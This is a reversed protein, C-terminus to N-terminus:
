VELYSLYEDLSTIHGEFIDSSNILKNNVNRAALMMGKDSSVINIPEGSIQHNIVHLLQEDWIQNLRERKSPNFDPMDLKSILNARMEIPAPYKKLYEKAKDKIFSPVKAKNDEMIIDERRIVGLYIALSSIYAIATELKFNESAAYEGFTMGNPLKANKLVTLMRELECETEQNHKKIEEINSLYPTLNEITPNKFVNFVIEAVAEQSTEAKLNKVGFLEIALQTEPLPLLNYTQFDGCHRYIARIAKTCDGTADFGGNDFLHCILERAVTTSMLSIIGLEKQREVIKNVTEDINEVTKRNVLKRYANTDFIIYM